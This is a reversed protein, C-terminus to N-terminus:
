FIKGYKTKGIYQLENYNLVYLKANGNVFDDIFYPEGGDEVICAIGFRMTNQKDRLLNPCNTIRRCYTNGISSTVTFFWGIQSPVYELVVTIQTGNDLSLNLKQKPEQSINLIQQM